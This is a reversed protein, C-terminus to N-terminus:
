RTELAALLDAELRLTSTAPELDDAKLQLHHDIIMRNVEEEDGAAAAARLAAEILLTHHPEARLGVAAARRATALDERHSAVSAVHLAVDVIQMRIEHRLDETWAGYHAKLVQVKAGVGPAGSTDTSKNHKVDHSRGGEFPLGRVLQLAKILDPLPANAVDAGILTLFVDHDTTVGQLKIRQNKPLYPQGADDAGLWRRIRSLSTTCNRSAGRDMIPLDWFTSTFSARSPHPMLALYLMQAIMVTKKSADGGTPEEGRAGLLLPPGMFALVPGEAHEALIQEATMTTWTTSTRSTAAAGLGSARSASVSESSDGASGRSGTLRATGDTEQMDPTPTSASSSPAPVAVGNMSADRDTDAPDRFGIERDLSSDLAPDAEEPDSDGDGASPGADLDADLDDSSNVSDDSLIAAGSTSCDPRGVDLRDGVPSGASAAVDVTADVTLLGARALGDAHERLNESVLGLAWDPGPAWERSSAAHLEDLIETYATDNLRTPHLLVPGPLLEADQTRAHLGLVWEGLPEGQVTIAALGVRPHQHVVARLRRHQDSDLPQSLLILQPTWADVDVAHACATALDPMQHAAMLASVDHAGRELARLLHEVDDVHSLRATGLAAPLEPALDGVLTIHVNDAWSSTALEMAIARLVQHAMVTPGTIALSSLEELNLMVIAGDPDTGITTLTPYPAEVSRLPLPQAYLDSYAGDVGAHGVDGTAEAEAEVLARVLEAADATSVMWTTDGGDAIASEGVSDQTSDSTRSSSPTSSDDTVGQWPPPLVAPQALYLEIGAADLRAAHVQPMVSRDRHAEVALLRLMVDLHLVTEPDAVQAFEATSTQQEQRAAEYGDLLLAESEVEAAAAELDAQLGDAVSGDERMERGATGRDGPAWQGQPATRGPLRRGAPRARRQQRRRVAIVTLVSAALLASVGIATSTADGSGDLEGTVHGAGDGAAGATAGNAVADGAGGEAESPTTAAPPSTTSPAAVTPAAVTPAATSASPSAAEPAARSAPPIASSSLGQGEPVGPEPVPPATDPTAPATTGLTTNPATTAAANMDSDPILVTWGADIVDPDQLRVGGPQPVRASAQAIEPWRDADHLTREAIESLSDGREVVYTREGQLSSPGDTTASLTPPPTPPLALVWGPTLWGDAALQGGDAQLRDVNLQLLEGYRTADGLHKEALDWLTDGAVVTILRGQAAGGARFSEATCAPDTAPGTALGDTPGAASGDTARSTSTVTSATTASAALENPHTGAGAASTSAAAAPATIAVAAATPAQPVELAQAASAGGVPGALLVTILTLLGGASKRPWELGPIAPLRVGPVARALELLLSLTFVAWAIWVVLAILAIVVDPTVAGFAVDLLSGAVSLRAFPNGVWQALLVPIGLVGATTVVLLVVGALRRWLTPRPPVVGMPRPARRAHLPTAGDRTIDERAADRGTGDRGAGDRATTMPPTPM